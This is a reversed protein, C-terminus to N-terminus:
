ALGNVLIKQGGKPGDKDMKAAKKTIKSMKSMNWDRKQGKWINWVM